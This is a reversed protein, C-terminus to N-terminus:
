FLVRTAPTHWNKPTGRVAGLRGNPLVLFLFPPQSHEIVASTPRSSLVSHLLWLTTSPVVRWLARVPTGLTEVTLETGLTLTCVTVEM